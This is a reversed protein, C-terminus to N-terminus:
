KASGNVDNSPVLWCLIAQLAFYDIVLYYDDDMYSQPSEESISTNIKLIKDMTIQQQMRNYEKKLADIIARQIRQDLDTWVVYGHIFSEFEDKLEFQDVAKGIHSVLPSMHPNAMAHQVWIEGREPPKLFILLSEICEEFSPQKILDAVMQSEVIGLGLVHASTILQRISEQVLQEIPKM